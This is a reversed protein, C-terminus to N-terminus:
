VLSRFFPEHRQNIVKSTVAINLCLGGTWRLAACKILLHLPLKHLLIELLHLNIEGFLKNAGILLCWKNLFRNFNALSEKITITPLPKTTTM